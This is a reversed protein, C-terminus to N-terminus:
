KSEKRDLIQRFVSKLVSPISERIIEDAPTNKEWDLWNKVRNKLRREWRKERYIRGQETFRGAPPLAEWLLSEPDWTRVGPELRLRAKSDKVPHFLEVGLDQFSAGANEAEMRLAGNEEQFFDFRRVARKKWWAAFDSMNAFWVEKRSAAMRFVNELFEPHVGLWQTPHDYILCPEGSEYKEKWLEEFYSEVEKADYFSRSEMYVGIGIPHVPVQLVPSRRGNVIPYLPLDDYDFSFESSFKFSMEELVRQLGPNWRGYPSAFGKRPVGLKELFESAKLINRHNQAYSAYTFHAYAHSHVDFGAQQCRRIEEPFRDYSAMCFFISIARAHPAAARFFRDFEERSYEDADVRLSFLTRYGHPYFAKRPCFLGQAKFADLIKKWLIDRVPKKPYLAVQESVLRGGFPFQKVVGHYRTLQELEEFGESALIGLGQQTLKQAEKRLGASTLPHTVYLARDGQVPQGDTLVEYSVGLRSLLEEWTEHNGLLSIRLLKKM